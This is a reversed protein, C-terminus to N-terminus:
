KLVKKECEMVYVFAFVTLLSAFRNKFDANESTSSYLGYIPIIFRIINALIYIYGGFKRKSLYISIGIIELIYILFALPLKLINIDDYQMNNIFSISSSDILLSLFSKSIIIILIILYALVWGSRQQKQNNLTNEEM